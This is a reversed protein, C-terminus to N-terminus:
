VGHLGTLDIVRCILFIIIIIDKSLKGWYNRNM